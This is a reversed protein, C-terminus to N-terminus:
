PCLYPSLKCMAAQIFNFNQVCDNNKLKSIIDFNCTQLGFIYSRLCYKTLIKMVQVNYSPHFQVKTYVCCLMNKGERRIMKERSRNCNQNKMSTRWWRQLPARWKRRDTAIQRWESELKCKKMDHAVVDNWRLNQGGAAHKGGEPRCVMLQCSMLSREMRAMHGLWRLGRQRIMSEVTEMGALKRIENNRMKEYMSVGLIIRLCHIM